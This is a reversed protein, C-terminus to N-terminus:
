LFRLIEKFTAVKALRPHDYEEVEEYAWSLHFPIHIGSGGIRLVPDIDSRFSNGVMLFAEPPCGNAGCLRRYSSEDKHAVILVDDFLPALGSRRIKATQEQLDGKTYLILRYRGRLAELTEVVGDLPTAPLDIVARGAQLITHIEGTSAGYSIATEVLSLTFAKGGFGLSDMNALERRTLQAFTEEPPGYPLLTEKFVQEAATFYSQCDWLTDDADVAVLRIRSTDM